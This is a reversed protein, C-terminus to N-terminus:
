GASRLAPYYQKGYQYYLIGLTIRCKWMESIIAAPDTKSSYGEDECDGRGRTRTESQGQDAEDDGEDERPKDPRPQGGAM